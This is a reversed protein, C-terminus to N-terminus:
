KAHTTEEADFEKCVECALPDHTDLLMAGEHRYVLVEFGLRRRVGELVRVRERLADREARTDRLDLALALWEEPLVELRTERLANRLGVEIERRREESVREAM